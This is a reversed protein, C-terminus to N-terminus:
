KVVEAPVFSEKYTWVGESFNSGANVFEVLGGDVALIKFKETQPITFCQYQRFMAEAKTVENNMAHGTFENMLDRSLCAAAAEQGKAPKVIMEARLMPAAQAKPAHDDMLFYAIVALWFIIAMVARPDVKQNTNSQQTM